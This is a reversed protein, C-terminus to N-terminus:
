GGSRKEIHRKFSEIQEDRGLIVLLDGAQFRYTPPPSINFADPRPAPAPAAAPGKKKGAKNGGAAAAAAQGPGTAPAGTSNVALVNIGFQARLNSSVLTEGVLYKPVTLEIISHDRALQIHEMIDPHTLSSALREAMEREPYVVRTAGVRSLIHGHTKNNAKAIIQQFNGLSALVSTSLISNELSAGCSVIAVDMTDAGLKRLARDDSGSAEAVNPIAEAAEQVRAGDVDIALVEEDQLVLTRAVSFGFQGLGVVLYRLRQRAM